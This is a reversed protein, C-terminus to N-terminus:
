NIKIIPKALLLTTGNYLKVDYKGTAWTNTNIYQTAANKLNQQLVLAGKADHVTIYLKTATATGLTITLANKVPNPALKIGLANVPAVSTVCPTAYNLTINAYNIATDAPLIHRIYYSATGLTPTTITDKFTYSKLAFSGATAPMTKIPTFSAEGPLRRWLEYTNNGADKSSFNITTNCTSITAAQAQVRQLAIAYAAKMNPIGYGFRGDPNSYRSSSRQTIDVISMANLEPFAQWLDTILGAINPNSFSTGNGNSASGSLNIFSTAVGVSTINPKIKGNSNPGWASFNAMNGNVDCAGVAVVSDGDAPVAVYKYDVFSGSGNGNNGASNCVLIGKQAALDAAITMLASNGNRQPYSHDFIPNDFDLYGLSTAFLDIGISDAREAAATWNQEEILYESAVDETRYLYYNAKPATGIMMGPKNAGMISLCYFGHADDENVSAENAVYDWTEKIQNNIRLSDIGTNTNLTNFGADMMAVSMGQGTFGKDHLYAGNHINVQGASNGYNLQTNLTNNANLTANTINTIAQKNAGKSKGTALVKAALPATSQVFTFANIKTIATADSTVIAVQNLWKSTNHITVNPTLRISDLYRPTIPLDTSDVVIGYRTRRAIAKASLYTSPNALTHPTGGKNKFKVIYRTFQAQSETVTVCLTILILIIKHM